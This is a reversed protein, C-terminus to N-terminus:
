DHILELTSIITDVGTIAKKLIPKSINDLYESKFAGLVSAADFEDSVSGGNSEKDSEEDSEEDGDEDGSYCLDPTLVDIVMNVDDIAKKPIPKGTYEINDLYMSKFDMLAKAAEKIQSLTDLLIM